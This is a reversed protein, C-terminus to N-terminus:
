QRAGLPRGRRSDTAHALSSRERASRAMSTPAAVVETASRPLGARGSAGGRHSRPASRRCARGVGEGPDEASAVRARASRSSARRRDADVRRTPRGVQRAELRAAPRGCVSATSPADRRATPRSSATAARVGHRTRAADGSLWSGRSIVSSARRGSTVATSTPAPSGGPGSSRPQSSSRAPRTPAGRGAPPGLQAITRAPGTDPARRGPGLAIPAPTRSALGLPDELGRWEPHAASRVLREPLDELAEQGVGVVGAVRGTRASRESASASSRRISSM